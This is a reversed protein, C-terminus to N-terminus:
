ERSDMRWDSDGRSEAPEDWFTAHATSDHPESEGHEPEGSALEEHFGRALMREKRNSEYESDDVPLEYRCIPCSNHMKLWTKVCEEGHFMHKCPLVVASTGIAFKELCIMCAQEHETITVTPLSDISDKSAPPTGKPQYANFLHNLIDGFGRENSSSSLLFQLEDLRGVIVAVYRATPQEEPSREEFYVVLRYRQRSNTNNTTDMDDAQLQQTDPETMNMNHHNNILNNLAAITNAATTTTTTTSPFDGEDEILPPLPPSANPIDSINPSANPQATTCDPAQAQSSSAPPGEPVNPPPVHVMDQPRSEEPAVRSRQQSRNSRVLNRLAPLISRSLQRGVRQALNPSRQREGSGHPADEM